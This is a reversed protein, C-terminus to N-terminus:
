DFTIDIKILFIYKLMGDAFHRGNQRPRLYTLLSPDHTQSYSMRNLLFVMHTLMPEPLVPPLPKNSSPVLDNRFSKVHILGLPM